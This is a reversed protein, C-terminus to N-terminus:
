LPSRHAQALLDLVERAIFNVRGHREAALCGARAHIHAAWIAATLPEAGRALYGTALGAFVDGSGSTALGVPGTREVFMPGDPRQVYTEPGRVAVTCGTREVLEAAMQESTLDGREVGLLDAAEADNPVLLTRGARDTLVGPDEAVATLAAADVLLCAETGVMEEVAARLMSRAAVPTAGSGVLVADARRLDDRLLAVVRARGAGAEDEERVELDGLSVVKSEPVAVALASGEAAGLGIQLRGAGARLAALGALLVAGPTETSGGVVLATGRSHKDGGSEQDPLPHAELVAGDVERAEVM